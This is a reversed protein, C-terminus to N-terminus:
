RLIREFEQKLRNLVEENDESRMTGVIFSVLSKLLRM